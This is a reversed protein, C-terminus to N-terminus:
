LNNTYYLFGHTIAKLVTYNEYKVKVKWQHATYECRESSVSDQSSM